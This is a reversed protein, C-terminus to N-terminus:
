EFHTVQKFAAIYQKESYGPNADVTDLFEAAMELFTLKQIIENLHINNQLMEFEVETDYKEKILQKYLHDFYERKSVRDSTFRLLLDIADNYGLSRLEERIEGYRKNVIKSFDNDLKKDLKM